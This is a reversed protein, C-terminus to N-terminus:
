VQQLIKPYGSALRFLDSCRRQRETHSGASSIKSSICCDFISHLWQFVATVRFFHVAKLARSSGQFLRIFVTLDYKNVSGQKQSTLYNSKDLHTAILLRGDIQLGLKLKIPPTPFFYTVLVQVCSINKCPWMSPVAPSARLCPSSKNENKGKTNKKKRTKWDKETLKEQVSLFTKM